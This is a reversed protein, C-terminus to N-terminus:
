GKGPRGPILSATVRRVSYWYNDIYAHGIGAGGEGPAGATMTFLVATKGEAAWDLVVKGGEVKPGIVHKVATPDPKGKLQEVCKFLIVGDDASVKDVKLVYIHHSTGCLAGLTPPPFDIYASAPRSYLALLFAAAVSARLLQHSTHKMM